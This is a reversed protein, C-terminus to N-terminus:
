LGICTPALLLWRLSTRGDNYRLSCSKVSITYQCVVMIVTQLSSPRSVTRNDLILSAVPQTPAEITTFLMTEIPNNTFKQTRKAIWNCHTKRVQCTNVRIIVMAGYLFAKNGHLLPVSSYRTCLASAVESVVKAVSFCRNPYPKTTTFAFRVLVSFVDIFSNFSM